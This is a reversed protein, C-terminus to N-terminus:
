HSFWKLIYRKLNWALVFHPIHLAPRVDSAKIGMMPILLVCYQSTRRPRHRCWLWNDVSMTRCMTRIVMFNIKSGQTQTCSVVGGRVQGAEATVEQSRSCLQSWAQPFQQGPATHLGNSNKIRGVPSSSIQVTNVLDNFLQIENIRRNLRKLSIEFFLQIRNRKLCVSKTAVSKNIETTKFACTKQVDSYKNGGFMGDM